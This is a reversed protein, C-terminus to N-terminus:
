IQDKQESEEPTVWIVATDSENEGGPITLIFGSGNHVELNEVEPPSHSVSVPTVLSPTSPAAVTTEVVREFPRAVFVFLIAAAAVGAGALAGVWPTQWWPFITKGPISAPKKIARVKEGANIDTEIKAWLADLQSSASDAELECYTRIGEGLATVGDVVTKEADGLQTASAEGDAIAMLEIDDRKTSM